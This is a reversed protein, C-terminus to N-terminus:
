DEFKPTGINWGDKELQTLLKELLEASFEMRDHLLIISGPEIQSTIRTLIKDIGGEMTDFSRVNWGITKFEIGTKKVGSAILPNTVGFPPRFLMPAKGTISTLIQNCHELDEKIKRSSMLPFTGKHCYSHNGIQHGEAVIQKVLEPHQEAHQGILFFVAKAQHSKLVDLVEATHASPGDDFTLYVTKEKSPVNCQAKLYVGSGIYYSAYFLYVSLALFVIIASAIYM